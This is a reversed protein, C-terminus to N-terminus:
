RAWASGRAARSATELARSQAALQEYRTAIGPAKFNSHFIFVRDGIKIVAGNQLLTEKVATGDVLTEAIASLSRVWVENKENVVIEAHERSVNILNIRVDCYDARGFLYRKERFPFTGSKTGDKKVLQLGGCLKVEKPCEIEDEEHEALLRLEMMEGCHGCTVEVHGCTADHWALDGRRPSETCGMNPCDVPTWKCEGLHAALGGVTGKWGCGEGLEGGEEGEGHKCRLRLQSIMGALPRSRVLKHEGQVPRRCAPCEKKEVLAQIFCARCFTHGEPCGSAPEVRMIGFCLGCESDEWREELM